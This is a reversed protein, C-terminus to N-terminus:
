SILFWMVTLRLGNGDMDTLPLIKGRIYAKFSKITAQGVKPKESMAGVTMGTFPADVNDELSLFKNQAKKTGQTREEIKKLDLIKYSFIKCAFNDQNQCTCKITPCM